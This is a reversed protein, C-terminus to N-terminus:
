KNMSLVQVTVKAKWQWCTHIFLEVYVTGCTGPVLYYVQYWPVRYLIIVLEEGGCVPLGPLNSICKCTSTPTSYFLRGPRRTCYWIRGTYTLTSYQYYWM